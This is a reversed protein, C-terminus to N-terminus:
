AEEAEVLPCFIYLGGPTGTKTCTIYLGVDSAGVSSPSFSTITKLTATSPSMASTNYTALTSASVFARLNITWYNSADNTTLVYIFNSWKFINFTRDISVAFPSGAVTLPTIAAYTGFPLFIRHKHLATIGGDTLDTANAVSLNTTTLFGAAHVGDLTDANGSAGTTFQYVATILDGTTPATVFDFTGSAPTTEVWDESTGQTQLQGNLFVTLSGTIYSGLSVTYQTNSSNVLGALIGYTDSTGASQDVQFSISSYPIGGDKIVKGTTGDFLAVNGDVSTSPGTVAGIINKQIVNWKTGVTAQDGSATSDTNCICMDGVEVDIGSAGGIKGAVSVIYLFGADAAPYNPNTSCDIVGKYVLANANGLINDTYVKVANQSPVKVDSTGLTTTTDLEGILYTSTDLGITGSTTKLLGTGTVTGATFTQPTTQNLSVVGSLDTVGTPSPVDLRSFTDDEVSITVDPDLGTGTKVVALVFKIRMTVPIVLSDGWVSTSYEADLTTLPLSLNSTRLLVPNAGDVDTQYIYGKLRTPKTTSSCRATYYFFRSGEIVRYEATAVDTIFSAITTEGDLATTVITQVGGPPLTTTAKYMGAVDSATKTFFFSKMGGSQVEDVYKKNTLDQDDVPVYTSTIKNDGMDLDGAMTDGSVNIFDADFDSSTSLLDFKGSLPNFTFKSM